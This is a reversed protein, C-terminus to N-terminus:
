WAQLIVIICLTGGLHRDPINVRHCCIMVDRRDESTAYYDLSFVLPHVHTCTHICIFPHYLFLVINVGFELSWALLTTALSEIGM